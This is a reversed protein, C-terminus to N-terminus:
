SAGEVAQPAAVPARTSTPRGESSSCPATRTDALAALMPSLEASSSVVDLYVRRLKYVRKAPVEAPLRGQEVALRLQALAGRGVVRRRHSHDRVAARPMLLPPPLTQLHEAERPDLAINNWPDLTLNEGVHSQSLDM